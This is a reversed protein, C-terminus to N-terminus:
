TSGRVILNANLVITQPKIYKKESEILEVLIEAAKKGMEFSPQNVVTMPPDVLTTIKNNSYGILGIESPIKLGAKRIRMYAGIAMPTNVCFIADPIIKRSILSDMLNYGDEEGLGGYQVSEEKFHIGASDLADKYGKLRKRCIELTMPGAFHMIKKYGKDILHSVADFSCKVDDIIIKNAEVDHCIRDFLVVPIGHDIAESFHRGNKTNQSVSAIIGAVRQKILSNTNIIEREYNEDSQCLIITYGSKYAVEEIGSIAYSFFEYKIDPVIVGIIQAKNNSLSQAILNPKYNFKKAIKKVQEKTETSILPHDRLARSVTSRSVGLKKAIDEITVNKMLNDSIINKICGIAYAVPQM